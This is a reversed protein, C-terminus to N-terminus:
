VSSVPIPALKEFIATVDTLTTYSEPTASPNM